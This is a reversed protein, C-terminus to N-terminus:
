YVAEARAYNYSASFRTSTPKVEVYEYLKLSKINAGGLAVYEFIDSCPAIPNAVKRDETGLVRVNKLTVKQENPSILHLAGEYRIENITIVSVKKERQETPNDFM